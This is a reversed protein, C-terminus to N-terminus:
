FTECINKKFFLRVSINLLFWRYIGMKKDSKWGILYIALIMSLTDIVCVALHRLRVSDMYGDDVKALGTRIRYDVFNEARLSCQPSKLKECGHCGISSIVPYSSNRGVPDEFPMPTRFVREHEDILHGPNCTVGNCLNVEDNTSLYMACYDDLIQNCIIVIHTVKVTLYSTLGWPTIGM